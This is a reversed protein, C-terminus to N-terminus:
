AKLSCWWSEQTEWKYVAAWPIDWDGYGCSGTGWLLDREPIYIYGTWETERPFGIVTSIKIEEIPYM